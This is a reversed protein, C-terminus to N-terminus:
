SPVRRGSRLLHGLLVSFVGLFGGLVIGVAVFLLPRPWDPNKPPSAPDIVRFAFEENGRALMSKQLETELLRGISQQLTIMNTQTLEGQLYALNKEAERLARERLRANLRRVLASAWEAAVEPDTWEVAVTVMGDQRDDVVRLVREHFFRVADRIDPWEDADDGLWRNGSADWRDSFFVPLLQYDQIFARAFERSNLVAVPEATGGGNVNIGALSALGGFQAAISPATKEEAPALLVEARYWATALLVFAVSALAFVTTVAIIRWKGHWVIDWLVALNIEEHPHVVAVDQPMVYVLREDSPRKDPQREASNDEMVRLGEGPAVVTARGPRIFDADSLRARGKPGM